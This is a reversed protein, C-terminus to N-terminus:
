RNFLSLKHAMRTTEPLKYRTICAMVLEVSRRLSILHGPSVYIPKVGERSRLVAGICEHGDMLPCWQGKKEPINGHTGFLRSKAAGITPISTFLGLHCAIGMRRPHSIGQGDCIFLDPRISVGKLAKLLIPMERFSLLGPVYPFTLEEEVCVEDKVMLDPFSLIAIAARGTNSEKNFGVDVGAVHHIDGFREQLNVMGRLEQQIAIAEKPTVNWKHLHNIRM